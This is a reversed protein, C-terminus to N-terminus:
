AKETHQRRLLVSGAFLIGIMFFTIIKGSLEMNWVDIVLLRGVVFLLTFLGFKNLVKRKQIEGTIYTTLGIATYVTLTAMVALYDLRFTAHFVKWIWMLTYVGGAVVLFTATDHFSKSTSKKYYFYLGSALLCAAVVTLAYFENHLLGPSWTGLLAELSLFVPLTFYFLVYKGIDEGLLAVGIIPLVLAQISFAIILVPGDFEFATAIALLVVAIATYLYVPQKLSTRRFTMFSAGSYFLAATATILSKSEETVLGNIWGYTFLGIAGATILDVSSVKRNKIVTLLNVLFFISVFLAAFFRLESFELPTLLSQTQISSSFFYSLSYLTTIVLCLLTLIQWRRYVAIWITGVVIVTLYSYLGFLNPEPSNTLIPALSAVSLGAVSLSLSDHKLSILATIAAILALFLLAVIPPFMDYRYQAAYTTVTMVAAGLWVLTIGQTRVRYLRLQGFYLIAAGAILGITIRGAQGIWNHLFAYTAFWIFGLLIFLAGTKLMWEHAYWAFFKEVSSPAQSQPPSQVATAVAPDEPKVSPGEKLVTPVEKGRELDKIRSSLNSLKLFIYILLGIQLVGWFDWYFM